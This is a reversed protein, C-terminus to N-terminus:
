IKFSIKVKNLFTLIVLKIIFTKIRKSYYYSKVAKVPAGKGRLIIPPGKPGSNYLIGIPNYATINYYYGLPTIGKLGKFAVAIVRAKVRATV